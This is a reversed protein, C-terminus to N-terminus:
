RSYLPRDSCMYKKLPMSLLKNETKGKVRAWMTKGNETSDTGAGSIYCFTMDKNLELLTSAANLTLDCTIKYYEDETLGASSVDLCFFCTNYVTMERSLDKLDFLDRHIVEKLKQHSIEGAQLNIVLVSEVNADKLSELLIGQGIMGKSGFLIANTKM